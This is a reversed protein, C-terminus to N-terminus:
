IAGAEVLRLQKVRLSLLDLIRKKTFPLSRNHRSQIVLMGMNVVKVVMVDHLM